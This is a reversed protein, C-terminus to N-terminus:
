RACVALREQLGLSLPKLLLSPKPVSTRKRLGGWDRPCGPSGWRLGRLMEPGTRPSQRAIQRPGTSISSSAPGSSGALVLGPMIASAQCAALPGSSAHPRSFFLLNVGTPHNLDHPQAGWSHRVSRPSRMNVGTSRFAHHEQGNRVTPAGGAWM